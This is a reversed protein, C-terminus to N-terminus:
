AARRTMAELISGPAVQSGALEAAVEGRGLVVVRDSLEALEDVDSSLLLVGVGEDAMLRIQAHIEPRTAVDVGATPDDLLLLSPRAGLWRAVIAKQQNGGSLDSILVRADRRLGVRDLLASVASRESGPRVFGAFAFRGIMPLSVNFGIPHSGFAALSRDGPLFGAGARVARPVDGPRVREGCITIEGSFHLAGCASLLLERAGSGAMGALGVIEGRGVQFSVGYLAPGTLDRLELMPERAPAAPRRSASTETIGSGVLQEVLSERTVEEHGLEAVVRGDRVVTVGTCLADIEDIRHSVYLISIERSALGRIAELLYEVEQPSITATPEDFIMVRAKRAFARAIMVLRQQVLPLDGVVDDPRLPLSLGEIVERARDRMERPRLFGARRPYRGLAVNEAVTMTPAVTLEQPVAVIGARLSDRPSGLRLPQGDVLVRGSTPAVIGTLIKILTSKGAGNAGILGRLEGSRLALSADRLATVGGYVKTLEEARLWPAQAEAAL